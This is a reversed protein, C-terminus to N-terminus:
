VQPGYLFIKAQTQDKVSRYGLAPPQRELRYEEFETVLAEERDSTFAIWLPAAAQEPTVALLQITRHLDPLAVNAFPPDCFVADYNFNAMQRPQSLDFQKFRKPSKLVKKWRPDRDLLMYDMGAADAMAALSPNCLLLPREYRQVVRFLRATTAEDYYFQEFRHDEEVGLLTAPKLDTARGDLRRAADKAGKGAKSGRGKAAAYIVLSGRRRRRSSSTSSLGGSSSSSSANNSILPLTLLRPVCM